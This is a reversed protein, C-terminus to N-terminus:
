TINQVKIKNKNPKWKMDLSFFIFCLSSGETPIMLVTVYSYEDNIKIIQPNPTREVLV